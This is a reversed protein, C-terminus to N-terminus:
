PFVYVASTCGILMGHHYLVLRSHEPDGIIPMKSMAAQNRSTDCLM